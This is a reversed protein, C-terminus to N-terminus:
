PIPTLGLREALAAFRRSAIWRPGPCSPRTGPSIARHSVVFRISPFTRLALAAVELTAQYQADSVPVAGSGLDETGIAVTQGNPNGGGCPWVNGGELRGNAWATDTLNVYQHQAGNLGIGFHYSVQAAPNQLWSDTGALTGAVTHIVVACPTAGGRGRSFHPSGIWRVRPEGIPPPGPPPPPETGRARPPAWLGAADAGTM